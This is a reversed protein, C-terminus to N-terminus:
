WTLIIGTSFSATFLLSLCFLMLVSSLLPILLKILLTCVWNLWVYLPGVMTLVFLVSISSKYLHVPRNFFLLEQLSKTSYLPSYFCTEYKLSLCGNCCSSWWLAVQAQSSSCTKLPLLNCHHLEDTQFSFSQNNVTKRRVSSKIQYVNM